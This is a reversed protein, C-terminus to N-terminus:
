SDNPKKYIKVYDINWAWQTNKWSNSWIYITDFPHCSSNGNNSGTWILTTNDIIKITQKWDECIYQVKYSVDDNISWSYTSIALSNWIWSLNHLSSNNYIQLKNTLTTYTTQFLFYNSDTRKLDEWKVSIEIAYNNWSSINSYKLFNNNDDDDNNLLITLFWNFLDDSVTGWTYVEINWEENVLTMGLNHTTYDAKAYLPYGNVTNDTNTITEVQSANQARLKNIERATRVATNISFHPTTTTTTTAITPETNSEEAERNFDAKNWATLTMTQISQGNVTVTNANKTMDITAVLNKLQTANLNTNIQLLPKKTATVVWALVEIKTNTGDKNVSFITWRVAATTDDTYIQFESDENLHTAKTWIKGTKLVLKLFTTSNDNKKFYANTLLIVWGNKLVSVSWDSFFIELDWSTAKITDGEHYVIWSATASIVLENPNYPLNVKSWNSVFDPGNYSRILNYPGNEASYNWDVTASFTDDDLLVSAIEFQNTNKTKGYSYYSNTRPDLPLIDLYKKPITNEDIVWYVWFTDSWTFSHAYSTDIKYFNTNWGPMPLSNNEQSFAELANKITSIDTMVKTNDAKQNSSNMSSYGVVALLTIISIAIIIEVLSFAKKNIM